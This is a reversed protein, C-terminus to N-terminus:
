VKTPHCSFIKKNRFEERKKFSFTNCETKKEFCYSIQTYSSEKTCWMLRPSFELPTIILTALLSSFM